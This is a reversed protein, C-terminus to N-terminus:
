TNFHIHYITTIISIFIIYNFIFIFIWVLDSAQTKEETCVWFRIENNRVKGTLGILGGVLYVSRKQDAKYLKYQTNYPHIISILFTIGYPYRAFKAESSIYDIIFIFCVISGWINCILEISLNCITFWAEYHKDFSSSRQFILQKRKLHRCAKFRMILRNNVWLVGQLTIRICYVYVFATLYWNTCPAELSLGSCRRWGPCM